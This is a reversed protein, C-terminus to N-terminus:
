VSSDYSPSGTHAWGSFIYCASSLERRVHSCLSLCLASAWPLYTMFPLLGGLLLGCRQLISPLLSLTGTVYRRLLLLGFASCLGGRSAM